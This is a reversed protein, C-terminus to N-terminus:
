SILITIVTSEYNMDSTGSPIIATIIIINLLTMQSISSQDDALSIYM